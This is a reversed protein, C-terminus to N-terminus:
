RSLQRLRQRVRSIGTGGPSNRRRVSERATIRSLVDAEFVPSARKLEAVTLDALSTGKTATRKMLRAVAQHADRFPMGKETLYEALDTALMESGSAAEEMVVKRVVLGKIALTLAQVSAGATEAADYLPPKTEQLDRNYGAPLGKLITLLSVLDGVVRGSKARVLEVLDANKKQPMISSSTCLEDPLEIFGFESSSWLILNEAIQSLHTQLLSCAFVFEAAFDRDSVADISNAFLGKLGLAKASIRPDIRLSTGALAGAGLPSVDVRKRCDTLRGEDRVIMEHFSLLVHAFLVPQARQLHTYGPCIVDSTGRARRVLVKRLGSLRGLLSDIADRTWLRLDLAVQDNRSRGAHIKAGARGALQILRKEVNMHVDEDTADLKWKGQEHERRIRRLARVVTAAEKPNLLGAKSLARAHAISGEIDYPVLREDDEVSAVFEEAFPDPDKSFRERILRGM